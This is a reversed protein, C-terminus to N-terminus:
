LKKSEMYSVLDNITKFNRIEREPIVINFENEFLCILEVLDLSNIHLDNVLDTDMKIMNPSLNLTSAIFYRVKEFM